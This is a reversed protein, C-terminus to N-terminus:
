DWQRKFGRSTRPAPQQRPRRTLERTRTKASSCVAFEPRALLIPYPLAKLVWLCMNASFVLDTSDKPTLSTSQIARFMRIDTGAVPTTSPGASAQYPDATNFRGFTSTYYRQDAYDIGTYSDRTCTGYKEHDNTTASGIEEGYPYYHTYGFLAAGGSYPNAFARQETGRGIM